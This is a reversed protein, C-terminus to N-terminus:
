SFKNLLKYLHINLSELFFRSSLDALNIPLLLGVGGSTRTVYGATRSTLVSVSLVFDTRSPSFALRYRCKLSQQMIDILVHEKIAVVM